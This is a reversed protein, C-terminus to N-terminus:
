CDFTSSNDPSVLESLWLLGYFGTVLIALSLLTNHDDSSTFSTCVSTLLSLPLPPKRTPFHHFRRRACHLSLKVLPSDHAECVAPFYPELLHVIGSLYTSISFIKIHHSMFIIYLSLTDSTPEAPIRHSKCFTLYSNLASTYNSSTSQDIAYGFTIAQE